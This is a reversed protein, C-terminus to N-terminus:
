VAPLWIQHTERVRMIHMHCILEDNFWDFWDANMENKSEERQNKTEEEEATNIWIM